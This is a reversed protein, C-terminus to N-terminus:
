EVLAVFQFLGMFMFNGSPLAPVPFTMGSHDNKAQFRCLDSRRAPLRRAPRSQENLREIYRVHM